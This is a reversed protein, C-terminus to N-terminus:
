RRFNLHIARTRERKGTLFLVDRAAKASRIVSRRARSAAQIDVLSFGRFHSAPALARTM